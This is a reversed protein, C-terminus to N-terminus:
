LCPMDTQRHSLWQVGTATVLVMEEIGLYGRDPLIAGLELTYVQNEHVPMMPTKGYREWKPGLLGGGDHAVRGVQHGTAHMYEQYGAAILSQRAAQDVEWGQVGPKLVEAAASIAKNVAHLARTVDEPVSEGVYWCRQLDSSYGAKTVGLDVHFVHGPALRIDSSAIGHGIMSNPGSNVIPDGHRDWSFGLGREDMLRHVHEFVERETVGMHAFAGVEQFLLDTDRIAERMRSIETSTKQSRLPSVVTQASELSDEFRTGKLIDRLLLYMGHSIGDAKDDDSSFNVGIRPKVRSDVLKELEGLLPERIGHVYPVVRTWDGSNVLPDADYNGLVAVKEGTKTVMLATQWTLGGELILSLAPDAFEATERVFTIWVDLGSQAVLSVAQDLKEATLRAM